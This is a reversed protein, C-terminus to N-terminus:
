PNSSKMLEMSVTRQPRFVYSSPTFNAPFMESESRLYLVIDEGAGERLVGGAFDREDFFGHLFKGGAEARLGSFIDPHHAACADNCREKIGALDVLEADVYDRNENAFANREDLWTM